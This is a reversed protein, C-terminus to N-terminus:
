AEEYLAFPYEENFIGEEFDEPVLFMVAETYVSMIYTHEKQKVYAYIKKVAEKYSM